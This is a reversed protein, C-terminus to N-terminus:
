FIPLPLHCKSEAINSSYLLLINPPDVAGEAGGKRSGQVILISYPFKCMSAGM